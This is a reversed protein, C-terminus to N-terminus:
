REFIVNITITALLDMLFKDCYEHHTPQDPYQYLIHLSSIIIPRFPVILCLPYYYAWAPVFFWSCAHTPALKCLHYSHTCALVYPEVDRNTVIWNGTNVKCWHPYISEWFHKCMYINVNQPQITCFFREADYLYAVLYQFQYPFHSKWSSCNESYFKVENGTRFHYPVCTKKINHWRHEATLENPEHAGTSWSLRHLKM